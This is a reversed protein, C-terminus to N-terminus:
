DYIVNNYYTNRSKIWVLDPEFGVSTISQGNTTDGSGPYLVTNFFPEDGDASKFFKENLGM